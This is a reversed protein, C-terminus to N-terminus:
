TNGTMFTVYWGDTHLWAAAGMAGALAALVIGLAMERGDHYPCLAPHPTTPPSHQDARHAPNEKTPTHTTPTHTTTLHSPM